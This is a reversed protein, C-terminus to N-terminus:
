RLTSGAFDRGLTINYALKDLEGGVTLPPEGTPSTYPVVTLGDDSAVVPNPLVADENFFAKLITACAGSVAAHGAGYAPHIPSGEPFAQPLLLSGDTGTGKTINQQRNYRFIFQLIGVVFAVNGGEEVTDPRIQPSFPFTRRGLRQVELRGAFEEPRLRRHVSWKQYWVAKLARTHVELLLAQVHQVGFTAFGEQTPSTNYPNNQDFPIRLGRPLQDPRMMPDGTTVMILCANLFAQWLLDTQVYISLDRGNRIFRRQELIASDPPLPTCGNQINLWNNYDTMFDRNAQATVNRPNIGQAGYPIDRQQDGPFSAVGFLFQSIYPGRRVNATTGRFLERVNTPGVWEETFRSLDQSARLITRDTEYDKFAVDRALAMWYLEIMEAAERDSSFAPAPPMFLQHSDTAELDFAFAAAPNTLRRQMQTASAGPSAARSSFEAQSGGGGCGLPVGNLLAFSDNALANLLTCYANPHVLGTLPDHPLAKTFSAFFRDNAYLAEDGNCPHSPIPVNRAIQAASVRISFAADARQVPPRAGVECAGACPASQAQVEETSLLTPVGVVSAALTGATVRGIFARRSRDTAAEADHEAPNHDTTNDAEVERCTPKGKRM